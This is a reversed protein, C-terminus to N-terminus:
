ASVSGCPRSPRSSQPQEDASAELARGPLRLLRALSRPGQPSLRSGERIQALIGGRLGRHGARGSRADGCVYIENCHGSRAAKCASPCSTSSMSLRTAGIASSARRLGCRGCRRRSARAGDGVALVPAQMGRRKSDWLVLKWSEASERYGDEVAILEKQGDARAGILVLTCLRADELRVNFHVGGAWVYVYDRDELRRKRFERYEEERVGTLRAINTASLGAAEEGLAGGPTISITVSWFACEGEAPSAM